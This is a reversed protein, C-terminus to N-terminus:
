CTYPPPRKGTKYKQNVYREFERLLDATLGRERGGDNFYLTRSYPVAARIMRRELMGDFDGTWSKAALSLGRAGKASAAPADGAFTCSSWALMVAIFAAALMGHPKRTTAVMADSWFVLKALLTASLGLGLVMLM